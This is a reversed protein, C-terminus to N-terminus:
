LESLIEERTQEWPEVDTPNEEHQQIREDLLRRTPENLPMQAVDDAVVDWLEQLLRIRENPPLKLFSDSIAQTDM